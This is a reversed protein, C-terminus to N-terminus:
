NGFRDRWLQEGALCDVKPASSASMVNPAGPLVPLDPGPGAIEMVLKSRVADPFQAVSRVPLVFAGPGGVVCDRYYVDLDGLDSVGIMPRKLMLPLGNIVVGGDILEDRMAEIPPGQNNPGDGSVDIVRRMSQFGSTEFMRAGYLLASSISTRYARRLPEGALRGAFAAATEPGDVLTWPVVVRQEDSGAWEVYSLAIRGVMGGRIADLVPPSTLAAVYGDRQVRQEEADMSYSVDVALLLELDVEPLTQAPEARTSAACLALSLAALASLAVCRGIPTASM